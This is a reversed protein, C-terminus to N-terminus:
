VAWVEVFDRDTLNREEFIEWSCAWKEDLFFDSKKKKRTSSSECRFPPTSCCCCYSLRRKYYKYYDNVVWWWIYLSLCGGSKEMLTFTIVLSDLLLFRFYSSSYYNHFWWWIIIIAAAAFLDKDIYLFTRRAFRRRGWTWRENASRRTLYTTRKKGEFVGRRAWEREVTLLKTIMLRRIFPEDNLEQILPIRIRITNM